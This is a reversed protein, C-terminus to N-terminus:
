SPAPHQMLQPIGGLRTGESHGRHRRVATASVPPHKSRTELRTILAPYIHTLRFDTMEVLLNLPPLLWSCGGRGAAKGGHRWGETWGRRRGRMGAAATGGSGRGEKGAVGCGREGGPEPEARGTAVAVRRSVWFWPAPALPVGAGLHHLGAAPFSLCRQRSRRSFIGQRSRGTCTRPAAPSPCSQQHSSVHGRAAASSLSCGLLPYKLGACATAVNRHSRRQWTDGIDGGPGQGRPDRLPDPDGRRLTHQSHGWGRDWMPHAATAPLQHCQPTVHHGSGRHWWCRTGTGWRLGPPVGAAGGTCLQQCLQRPQAKGCFAPPLNTHLEGPTVERTAGPSM